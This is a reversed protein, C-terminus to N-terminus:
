KPVATYTATYVTDWKCPRLNPDWGAFTYDYAETSPRTPTPGNYQPVSGKPVNKDVKLVAGDWNKWTVTFATKTSVKKNCGLSATFLLPVIILTKKLVQLM